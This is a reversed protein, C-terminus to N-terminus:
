LNTSDGVLNSGIRCEPHTTGGDDMWEHEPQLEVIDRGLYLLM